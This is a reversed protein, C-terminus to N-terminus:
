LIGAAVVNAIVACAGAVMLWLLASVKLQQRLDSTRHM